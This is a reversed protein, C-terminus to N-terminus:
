KTYLRANRENVHLAAKFFVARSSKMACEVCREPPGLHSLALGALGMIGDPLVALQRHGGGAVLSSSGPRYDLVFPIESYITTAPSRTVQNGTGSAEPWYATVTVAQKRSPILSREAFVKLYPFGEAGTSGLIAGFGIVDGPEAAIGKRGAHMCPGPRTDEKTLDCVLLGPVKLKAGTGPAEVKAKTEVQGTRANVVSATRPVPGYGPKHDSGPGMSVIVVAAIVIVAALSLLATPLKNDTVWGRLRHPRTVVLAADEPVAPVAKVRERQRTAETLTFPREKRYHTALRSALQAKFKRAYSNKFTGPAMSPDLEIRAREHRENLDLKRTEANLGFWLRVVRAFRPDKFPDDPDDYGDIICEVLIEIRRVTQSENDEWYRGGAKPPMVLAADPILYEALPALDTLDGVAPNNMGRGRLDILQKRLREEYGRALQPREGTAGGNM